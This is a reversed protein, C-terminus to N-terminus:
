TSIPSPNLVAFTKWSETRQTQYTQYCNQNFNAAPSPNKGIDQTRHIRSQQTHHSSVPPPSPYHSFPITKSKCSNSATFDKGKIKFLIHLNLPIVPTCYKLRSVKFPDEDLKPKLQLFCVKEFKVNVMECM